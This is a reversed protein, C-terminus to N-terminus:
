VIGALIRSRVMADVQAPDDLDWTGAAGVYSLVMRACHDAALDVDASRGDVALESRLVGVLADQIMPHVTALSPVLAEAEDELLRQLVEHEGLLRRAGVVLAVVRAVLDGDAPVEASLTTFFRGVERRITTEVLEERGGPFHRYITARSSGARTAIAEVTLGGLGNDAVEAFTADLVRDRLDDSM